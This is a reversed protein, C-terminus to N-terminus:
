LYTHVCYLCVDFAFLVGREFYQALCFHARQLCREDGAFREFDSASAYFACAGAEGGAFFGQAVAFFGDGKGFCDFGGQFCFFVASCAGSAVEAVEGFAEHCAARFEGPPPDAADPGVFAALVEALGEVSGLLAIFSSEREAADEGYGAFVAPACVVGYAADFCLADDFFADADEGSFFDVFEEPARLCVEAAGAEGSDAEHEVRSYAGVFYFAQLPCVDFQFFFDDADEGLVAFCAARPM